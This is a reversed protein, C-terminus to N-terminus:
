FVYYCSSNYPSEANLLQVDSADMVIGVLIIVM